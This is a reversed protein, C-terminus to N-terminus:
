SGVKGFVRSASAADMQGALDTIFRAQLQHGKAMDAEINSVRMLMGDAVIGRVGYRMQALKQGIGTTVVDGGVVVWYTIPENRPGLKSMLQRVPLQRGGVPLTQLKNATIAFGQAPYCVEPRHASTGDSQDGGYAVSLMIREGKANVYSRSLVQNYIKDLLAQVDPSPLVVPMSTDVRWEGFAKPFMAELNPMGIQDAMHKTPRGFVAAGASAVMLLAVLLARWRVSTMM